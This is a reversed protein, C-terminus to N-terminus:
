GGSDSLVSESEYWTAPYHFVKNRGSRQAEFLAKKATLIIDDASRGNSPFSAVGMSVTTHITNGIFGSREITKGLSKAFRIGDDLSESARLIIFEDPGFRALFDELRSESRLLSGLEWFLQASTRHGHVNAIEKFNDVDGIVISFQGNTQTAQQLMEEFRELFPPYKDLGSEKDKTDLNSLREHLRANMYAIAALDAFFILLEVDDEDFAKAHASDVYVYGVSRQDTRLHVAICSRFPHELKCQGAIEPEEAADEILIPRGTWLLEGVSGTAIKQNFTKDYTHSLNFSSAIKLYETKPDVLLIACTQCKFLREIRDVILHFAYQYERAVAISELIERFQHLTRPDLTRM